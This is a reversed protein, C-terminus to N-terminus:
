LEIWGLALAIVGVAAGVVSVACIVAEGPSFLRRHQERRAKIFLFTAPAYILFSVLVFKLGAAYLLFATYVTAIAAIVLESRTVQGAVRERDPRLAIKVAFAAALLFPILSLASTLDLAFNFADDSFMTIVLVVQSLVTTMLLAPVPVDEATAQRLFRPMDDDKAAVFLVEAAMLTWALYAGLVSVILGVSVFVEGWTGVAHELVGAMSPQRLEAIEAMPMIGYSVITVSAFVAFVSLFGLVTARGVDERREAHRSYVSAGEVGLFVFVTALMTGRVQNFLSGAYDAGGWNAAFVDTDLFFLALVVFVLIPVIKAVTVIKNIAAAEKVGRRIFLFFAWLGVSSLAVALVTDGDGLAPWIAGITSMILVWYTVNGVCASAWYGFASFFGLYEGFGAKAYAYVGADLDPRRVALSQFVFALMLMGTGAIAWAILAGAVGTEQAFRRPLSFVGAGVMSGVVMATLTLLTLKAAPREAPAPATTEVHSM